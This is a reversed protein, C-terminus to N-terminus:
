IKQRYYIDLDEVNQNTIRLVYILYAVILTNIILVLTMLWSFSLVLEKIEFPMYVAGTMVALNAGWRKNNWIGAAETWRILGLGFALFGLTLIQDKSFSTIWKIAADFLPIAKLQVISSHEAWSFPDASKSSLVISIGIGFSMTGRFAKVLAIPKLGKAARKSDKPFQIITPPTKM